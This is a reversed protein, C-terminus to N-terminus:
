NINFEEKYNSFIKQFVDDAIIEQNTDERGWVWFGWYNTLLQNHEKLRAAFYDDVIYFESPERFSDMSEENSSSEIPQCYLQKFWYKNNLDWNRQNERLLDNILMSCNSRIRRSLFEYAERSFDYNM